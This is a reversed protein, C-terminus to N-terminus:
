GAGKLALAIAQDVALAEGEKTAAQFAVDGLAEHLADRVAAVRAQQRPPLALDLRQRTREAMGLLRTGAAHAEGALALQAHDEICGILEDRLEFERLARLAEDLPARAAAAQGAALETRGLGWLAKAEGRKDGAARCIALSRAFHERARTLDPQEYAISGLVFECEGDLERHALVRAIARGEDLYDRAAADDGRYISIEALHVLSVAECFRNDLGRFIQLAELEGAASGAADGAQLLVSSLTSLTAAVDLPNGLDRRLALCTELMARAEAHDSQTHALCAGVYLAWSQALASDRIAPLALATRLVGRGETAYGRVIWFRQLAVAFKVAIFPDAGGALSLAIATRMNDIDAEARKMWAAFDPGMAGERVAKAFGFYHNCHRAALAAREGSAVLKESAYDSITQLMRYRAGDDAEELMVLSKEILSTLRDLVDEPALPDVGCVQEAAALDFGGAFVALRNLLVQEAPQLLDYSWDVLARLTQQRELLARGGGTLLRYRDSLRTNIEAITLSRVRAAALELALPIGELRAVLEAVGPAEREGLQFSPKHQQAREVFLRVATSQRLEALSAGKGPLPLPLIPYVQEGPVRLAERSSAVVHVHPATRLAQAVLEAVPEILHECNDVILLMRRPKLFAAIAQILPRGPEERIGLTQAVETLLLSPNRIAALDFFWTGDPYHHRIENAVQLSLRTKGLGGMGVLTVLRVRDLLDRVDAVERERGVFSTVPQPLNGPVEDVPIWRDGTRVVRHAKDGSVPEVPRAGTEVAEFLEIPEAIGKMAWFGHSRLGHRLAGLTQRADDTMLVQGGRAVGMVRAAVPKAIGEVELPKAGLAVDAASNERLVVPGVHLGVRATLPVALEGLARQYALAYAVADDARDFMLLMGDTKDIERGHTQRLLDRAIRDHATWLEAMAADGLRESLRTSDVIDTLLLARHDSM